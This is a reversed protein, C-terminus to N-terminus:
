VGWSRVKSVEFPILRDEFAQKVNVTIHTGTGAHSAPSASGKREREWEKLGEQHATM